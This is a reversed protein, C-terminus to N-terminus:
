RAIGNQTQDSEWTQGDWESWWDYEPETWPYMTNVRDQRSGVGLESFLRQQGEFMLAANRLELRRTICSM